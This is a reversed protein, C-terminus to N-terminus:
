LISSFLDTVKKFINEGITQLSYKPEKLTGKIEIATLSSTKTFAQHTTNFLKINEGPGTPAQTFVLADIEGKFSLEGEILLSLEKGRLQLNKTEIHGERIFYDGQADEFVINSFRPVFLFTGLGRLPDFEWINGNKITLHGGGTISEPDKTNGQAAGNISLTGFFTRGKMPTDVKLKELDLGDLSGRLAFSPAEETLDLRGKILGDGEYAQFTANKIVGQRETQEYGIAIDQIYYGHLRLAKSTAQAQLDWTKPDRLPGQLRATVQCPGMASVKEALDKIKGPLRSLDALEIAAEGEINITDAARDWTGKFFFTSDHWRGSCKNFTILDTTVLADTSLNIKPGEIDMSVRPTKFGTLSGDVAYSITEHSIDAFEWSLSRAPIDFSVTGTKASLTIDKEKLHLWAEKLAAQGSVHTTEDKAFTRKFDITTEAIGSIEHDPLHIDESLFQTIDPIPLDGKLTFKLKKDKIRGEGTINHSLIKARGDSFTLINDQYAANVTIDQANGVRPLGVAKAASIDAKASFAAPPASGDKPATRVLRATIDATVDNIIVDKAIIRQTQATGALMMEFDDDRWRFPGELNTVQGIMKFPTEIHFAASALVARGDLRGTSLDKLPATFTGECVLAAKDWAVREKAGAVGAFALRPKLTLTEKQITAGIRVEDLTGATWTFPLKPIYPFFPKPDIDQATLLLDLLNEKYTYSGELAAPVSINNFIIEINSNLSAKNWSAKATAESLRLMTTSPKALMKDAFLIESDTIKLYKIVPRIGPSSPKKPRDLIDQINLNGDQGRTLDIRAGYLRLSPILFKREKGWPLFIVTAAAEDVSLLIKDTDDLAFVRLNRIIIGRWFELKVTECTVRRETAKALGGVLKERIFGPLFRAAALYLGYGTALLVLLVILVTRRRPKRM